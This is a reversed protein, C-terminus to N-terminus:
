FCDTVYWRYHAQLNNVGNYIYSRCGFTQQESPSEVGVPGLQGLQGLQMSELEAGVRRMSPIRQQPEKELMRGVLDVLAISVEPRLEDLEPPREKLIAMM